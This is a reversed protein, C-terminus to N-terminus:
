RRMRNDADGVPSTVIKLLKVEPLGERASRLSGEEPDGLAGGRASASGQEVSEEHGTVERGGCAFTRTIGIRRSAHM